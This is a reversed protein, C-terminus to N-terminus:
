QVPFVRSAAVMPRPAEWGFRVPVSADMSVWRQPNARPFGAQAYIHNWDSGGKTRIVKFRCPIGVSLLASCVLTSYDDCDATGMRLTHSPKQYTDVGHIDSTYRVRRRVADFIARAEAVNDKERICWDNGCRQRIAQRAFAMVLPDRKGEDALARLHYIRDDLNRIHYSRTRMLGLPTQVRGTDHFPVRVDPVPGSTRALGGRSHPRAPASRIQRVGNQLHHAGYVISALGLVVQGFSAM